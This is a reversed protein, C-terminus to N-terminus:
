HEEVPKLITIGLDVTREEGLFTLKIRARGKRYDIGAIYGEMSVLPGDAVVVRDNEMLVSSIGILEGNCILKGLVEMEYREIPLPQTGSKLLTLLGPVDKFLQISDQDINGNILVYGPFLTRTSFCWKGARRERLKRKPVLFLLKDHFRYELRQKVKDEQGTKVFIAYWKDPDTKNTKNQSVSM